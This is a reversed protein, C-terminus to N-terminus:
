SPAGEDCRRHQRQAADQLPVIAAMQSGGPQDPRAPPGVDPESVRGALQWWSAALADLQGCVEDVHRAVTDQYELRWLDKLLPGAADLVRKAVREHDEEDGIAAAGVKVAVWYPDVAPSSLAPNQQPARQPGAM